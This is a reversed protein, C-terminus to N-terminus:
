PHFICNGEESPLSYLHFGNLGGPKKNEGGSLAKKIRGADVHLAAKLERTSCKADTKLLNLM